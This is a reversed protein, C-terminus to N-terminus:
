DAAPPTADPEAEPEPNGEAAAEEADAALLKSILEEKTGGANLGRAKALQVLDARKTARLVEEVDPEAEPEPNIASNPGTWLFPGGLLRDPLVDAPNVELVVEDPEEDSYTPKYLGSGLAAELAEPSLARVDSRDHDRAPLEPRVMGGGVYRLSLLEGM